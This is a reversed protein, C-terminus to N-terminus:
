KPELEVYWGNSSLLFLEITSLTEINATYLRESNTFALKTDTHPVKNNMPKTQDPSSRKIVLYENESINVIRRMM